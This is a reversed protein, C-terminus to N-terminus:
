PDFGDRFISDPMLALGRYVTNAPATAITSFSPAPSGDDVMKVIDNGSAIAVTGYLVVANGVVEGALGRIGAAINQSFYTQLSWITGNFTWKEIGGNPPPHDDAVYLTDLGAVNTDRDFLLFQGLGMQSFGAMGPLLTATQGATVPLGTGITLEGIYLGSNSNGYLQGAFIGLMRMTNPDALIQTGGTSGFTTTWVGGSTDGANGSAWMASGDSSAASRITAGNFATMLLTSTDVAGGADIRAIVRKVAASSTQVISAVGPVAAYGPVILFRADASRTLNCETVTAGSETFPQNAGAVATPLPVTARLAGDPGRREVFVPTSSSTLAATGDGVRCVAIDSAAHAAPMAAALLTAALFASLLRSQV